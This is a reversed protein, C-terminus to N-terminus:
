QASTPVRYDKKNSHCVTGDAREFTVIMRIEKGVLNFEDGWLLDFRYGWGMATRKKARLPMAEEPNFSWEKLLKPPQPNSKSTDLLYMRPRIVGDGFVGLSNPGVLYLAKIVIGQIRSHDESWRWPNYPDYFSAISVVNKELPMRMVEDVATKEGSSSHTPAKRYVPSQAPAPGSSIPGGAPQQCGLIAPMVVMVMVNRIPGNIPWM